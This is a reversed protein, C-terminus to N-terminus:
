CLSGKKKKKKNSLKQNDDEEDNDNNKIKGLGLDLMKDILAMISENINKDTKASTEIIKYKYKNEFDEKDKNDVKKKDEPLDSKNGIIILALKDKPVTINNEIDTIWNKIHKFSGINSVDYMLLIGDAGKYCSKAISRFREEGATDWIQLQIKKDKHSVFKTKTDLGITTISEDEFKGDCFRLIFATKGVSSDGLLMIKFTIMGKSM